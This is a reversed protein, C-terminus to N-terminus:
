LDNATNEKKNQFLTIVSIGAYFVCINRCTAFNGELFMFLWVNKLITCLTQRIYYKCLTFVYFSMVSQFNRTSPELLYPNRRSVGRLLVNKACCKHPLTLGNILCFNFHNISWIILLLCTVVWERCSVKDHMTFFPRIFRSSFPWEM